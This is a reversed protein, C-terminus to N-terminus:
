AWEKMRPPLGASEMWVATAKGGPSLGMIVTVTDVGSVLTGMETGAQSGSWTNEKV